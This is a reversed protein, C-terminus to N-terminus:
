LLYRITLVLLISVVFVRSWPQPRPSIKTILLVGLLLLIAWFVLYHGIMMPAEIWMPPNEQLMNLQQFITSITGQRTFWAAAIAGSAIVVSLMIWTAVQPYAMRKWRFISFMQKFQQSTMRLVINIHFFM